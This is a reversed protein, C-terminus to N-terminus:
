RKKRRISRLMNYSVILTDSAHSNIVWLKYPDISRKGESFIFKPYTSFVQTRGNEDTIAYEEMFGNSFSYRRSLSDVFGNMKQEYYLHSFATLFMIEGSSDTSKIASKLVEFNQVTDLGFRVRVSAIESYSINLIKDVYFNAIDARLLPSTGLLFTPAELKYIPSSAQKRAYIYREGETTDVVWDFQLISKNLFGCFVKKSVKLSKCGLEFLRAIEPSQVEEYIQFSTLMVLLESIKQKDLEGEGNESKWQGSSTKYLVLTGSEDGKKQTLVIQAIDRKREVRFRKPSFDMWFYVLGLILVGVGGVWVAARLAKKVIRCDCNKFTGKTM